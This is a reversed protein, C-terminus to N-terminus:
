AVLSLRALREKKFGLAISTNAVCANSHHMRAINTTEQDNHGSKGTSPTKHGHADAMKECADAEPLGRRGSAASSIQQQLRADRNSNNKRREQDSCSKLRQFCQAIKVVEVGAATAAAM